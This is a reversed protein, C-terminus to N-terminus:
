PTSGASPAPPTAPSTGPPPTTGATAPTNAATPNATTTGAGPSAGSANGQATKAVPPTSCFIGATQNQRLYAIRPKQGVNHPFSQDGYLIANDPGTLLCEYYVLAGKTRPQAYPAPDFGCLGPGNIDSGKGDTTPNLEFCAPKGQCFSRIARTASCYRVYLGPANAKRPDQADDVYAIAGARVLDDIVHLDGYYAGLINIAAAQLTPAKPPIPLKSLAAVLDKDGAKPLNNKDQMRAALINALITAAATPDVILTPVSTTTPTPTATGAPTGTAPPTSPAATGASAPPALCPTPPNPATSTAPPSTSTGPPARAAIDVLCNILTNVIDSQSKDIKKILAASLADIAKGVNALCADAMPFMGCDANQLARALREIAKRHAPDKAAAIRKILEEILTDVDDKDQKQLKVLASFDDEAAMSPAAFLLANCFVALIMCRRAFRPCISSRV